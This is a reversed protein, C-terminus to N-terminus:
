EAGAVAPRPDLAEEMAGARHQPTPVDSVGCTFRHLGCLVSWARADYDVFKVGCIRNFQTGASSVSTADDRNWVVTGQVTIPACKPLLINLRLRTGPELAVGIHRLSLGGLGIDRVQFPIGSPKWMGFLSKRACIALAGPITFRETLRARWLSGNGNAQASEETPATSESDAHTETLRESSAV